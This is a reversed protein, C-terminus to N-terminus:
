NITSNKMKIKSLFSIYNAIGDENLDDFTLDKKFDHLHNRM